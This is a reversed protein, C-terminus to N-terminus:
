GGPARSTQKKGKAAPGKRGEHAPKAPPEAAPPEKPAPKLPTLVINRFKMASHDGQLYLPGPSDENSDIAGGTIGEVEKNDIITEGNLVVTLRQGILTIDFTQWEGPKRSARKSPVIRSYLAGCSGGGLPQGPPDSIIQIEYRGRLYVGSNGQPPPINFEVHLKFDKFEAETRLNAGRATNVLEGDIVKWNNPEGFTKWGALDRGNFLTIPQGWEPRAHAPDPQPVFRRGTFKRRDPPADPKKPDTRIVEGLMGNGAIKAEYTENGRRFTLRDKEFRLDEVNHVGGGTSVFTGMLKGDKRTVGLWSPLRRPGDQITLDWRGVPTAPEAASVAYAGLLGIWLGSTSTRFANM